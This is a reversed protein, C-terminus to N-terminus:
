GPEAFPGRMRGGEAEGEEVSHAPEDEVALAKVPV